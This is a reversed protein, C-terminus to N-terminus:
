LLILKNKVIIQYVVFDKEKKAEIWDGGKGNLFEVVNKEEEDDTSYDEPLKVCSNSNTEIRYKKYKKEEPSNLNPSQNEQVIENPQPEVKHEVISSKAPEVNIQPAAQEEIVKKSLEDVNEKIFFQKDDGEISNITQSEKFLDSSAKTTLAIM